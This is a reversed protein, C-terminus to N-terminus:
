VACRGAATPSLLGFDPSTRPIDELSAKIKVLSEELFAYDNATLFDRSFPMTENALTDCDFVPLGYNKGFADSADHLLAIAKGM